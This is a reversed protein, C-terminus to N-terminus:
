AIQIGHGFTEKGRRDWNSMCPHWDYKFNFQWLEVGGVNEPIYGILMGIKHQGFDKGMGVAIYGLYGGSQLVMYDILRSKRSEEESLADATAMQPHLSLLTFTVMMSSIHFLKKILYKRPM